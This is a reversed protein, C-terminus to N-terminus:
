ADNARQRLSALEGADWAVLSVLAKAHWVALEHLGKIREPEFGADYLMMAVFASWEDESLEDHLVFIEAWTRVLREFPALPAAGL